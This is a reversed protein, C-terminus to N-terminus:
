MADCPGAWESHCDVVVLGHGSTVKSFQDDNSVKVLIEMPAGKKKKKKKKKKSIKGTTM